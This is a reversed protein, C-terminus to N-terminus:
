HLDQQSLWISIFIAPHFSTKLIDNIADSFNLVFFHILKKNILIIIVIQIMAIINLFLRKERIQHCEFDVGNKNNIADNGLIRIGNIKEDDFTNRFTMDINHGKITM